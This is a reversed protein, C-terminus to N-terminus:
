RLRHILYQNGDNRVELTGHTSLGEAVTVIYRSAAGRWHAFNVDNGDQQWVTGDPLTATFMGNKDFSYSALPVWTENGRRVPAASPPAIAAMARAPPPTMVPGAPAGAALRQQFDPVPSLGLRARMPQVAGYICDLWARDETLRDCRAIGARFDERPGAWAALPGTLVMPLLLPPIIWIKNM